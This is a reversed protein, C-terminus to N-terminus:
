LWLRVLRPEPPLRGRDQFFKLAFETKWPLACTALFDQIIFYIEICHFNEPCSTNKLCACTAWFDQSLFYKHLVTFEPCVPCLALQEFIRFSLIYKLATFINLAVRTKWLLRLNSLFGLHLITSLVTFFKLAFETKLGLGFQEFIRFPLYYILYLPFNWPFSNKLALHFINWNLWYLCNGYLKKDPLVCCVLLKM